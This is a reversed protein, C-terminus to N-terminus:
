RKGMLEFVAAMMAKVGTKITLEPAPYMFPSHLTPLAVGTRKSEAYRVPDVGGLTFFLSPIKKDMGYYSFDEGILAPEAVTVNDEGLPKKLATSVRENLHPDNYNAPYGKFVMVVPLKDDPLGAAIGIGRAKQQMSAIIKDCIANDLARMSWKMRVEDPIINAATGGNISGVTLTAPTLPNVERSIITQLALVLQASIVIPDKGEQPKSSHAGVGRVVIEGGASVCTTYGPAMGVQGAPLEPVQHLGLIYAPKPFRTYLGDNLMAEAGSAGPGGEEAPQAVLVITGKWENKTAVLLKAVGLFVTMHIDHGCAHMVGTETGADNKVKITSAYPLGTQEVVPLADMDTRLMLVPGDGNKMVGVVGYGHWPKNAFKGINETVEYGLAKLQAAIFASTKEEHGSLEPAAHLAKYTAVWSNLDKQIANDINVQSFAPLTTLLILIALLARKM